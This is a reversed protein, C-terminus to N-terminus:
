RVSGFIRRLRYLGFVDPGCTCIVNLLNERSINGLKEQLLFNRILDPRTLLQHTLRQAGM